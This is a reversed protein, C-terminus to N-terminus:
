RRLKLTAGPFLAAWNGKVIIAASCDARCEIVKVEAIIKEARELSFILGNRLGQQFGKDLIISQTEKDVSLIICGTKESDGNGRGAVLSLPNLSSEIVRRLSMIRNEVERRMVDSPQMGDLAAAISKEFVSFEQEVALIRRKVTAMTEIAETFRKQLDQESGNQLLHAAAMELNQLNELRQNQRILSDAYLSRIQDLEQQVTVLEQALQIKERELASRAVQAEQLEFGKESVTEALTFFSGTFFLVLVIIAKKQKQWHSQDNKKM